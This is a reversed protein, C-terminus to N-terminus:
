FGSGLTRDVNTRLDTFLVQDLTPYEAPAFSRELTGGRLLHVEDCLDKLAGLMHSSLIVTRGRARLQEVVSILVQNAELDLGNMPEDLLFVPADQKLVALLALKKRMGTSYTGILEDLPLHLLSRLAELDFQRNTAPFIDVYERGTIGPHFYNEAELFVCRRRDFPLDDLLVRSGKGRNFGHLANFLSTKGSGNLGVLGHVMGTALMLEPIRLVVHSGYAVSLDIIRLM